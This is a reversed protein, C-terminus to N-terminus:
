TIIMLLCVFTEQLLKQDAPNELSFLKRIKYVGSRYIIISHDSTEDVMIILPLTDHYETWMLFHESMGFWPIHFTMDSCVRLWCSSSVTRITFSPEGSDPHPSCLDRPNYVINKKINHLQACTNQLSQVMLWTPKTAACCPFCCSPFLLIIVTSKDHIKNYLNDFYIYM